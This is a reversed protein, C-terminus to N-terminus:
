PAALRFTAPFSVCPNLHIVGSEDSGPVYVTKNLQISQLFFRCVACLVTLDHHFEIGSIEAGIRGADAHLDVGVANRVDDEFQWFM